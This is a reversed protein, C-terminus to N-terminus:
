DRRFEEKLLAELTAIESLAERDQDVSWTRSNAIQTLQVHGDRRLQELRPGVTQSDHARRLLHTVPEKTDRLGDRRVRAFDPECTVVRWAAFGDYRSHTGDCWDNVIHDFEGCAAAVEGTTLRGPWAARLAALIVDDLARLRPVRATVAEVAPGDTGAGPM